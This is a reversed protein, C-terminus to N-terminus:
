AANQGEDTGGGYVPATYKVRQLNGATKTLKKNHHHRRNAQLDAGPRSNARKGHDPMKVRERHRHM